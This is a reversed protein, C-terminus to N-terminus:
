WKENANHFSTGVFGTQTFDKPNNRIIYDIYSEVMLATLRYGSANMHGGLFFNAKFEEDYAPAYRRLDIVYCNDFKEALEYLIRAHKEYYEVREPASSTSNPITMLFFKAKPQIQKYKAIISAYYGVFTPKNNAHDTYDVDSGDGFEMEGELVRSIDNVGLAIIYAQAKYEDGFFGNSKAFSTCYERATMGGKSFNYVTSGIDRAMFQGWSYEYYDHYGRKGLEFSEFEGSSLSDGICAIKRFIGCFGGNPVISDLPKEGEQKMFKRVDMRTEKVETEM